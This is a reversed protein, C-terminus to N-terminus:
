GQSGPASYIITTAPHNLWGVLAHWYYARCGNDGGPQVVDGKVPMWGTGSSEQDCQEESFVYLPGQASWPAALHAMLPATSLSVTPASQRSLKVRIKPGTITRTQGNTAVDGLVVRGTLTNGALILYNQISISHGPLLDFSRPVESGSAAITLNGLPGIPDYVIKGAGNTVVVRPASLGWMVGVDVRTVNLVTLTVRILADTPYTRRGVALTIRLGSRVESARIGGVGQARSSLPLAAVLLLGVLAFRHM